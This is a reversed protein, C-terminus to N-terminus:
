LSAGFLPSYIVKSDKQPTIPFEICYLTTQSLRHSLSCPPALYWTPGDILPQLIMACIAKSSLKLSNHLPCLRIERETLDPGKFHCVGYYCM